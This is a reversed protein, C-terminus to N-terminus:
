TKKGVKLDAAEKFKVNATARVAKGDPTFMTYKVAVSEIVAQFSPIGGGASEQGRDASDAPTGWIVKVKPPRKTDTNNVMDTLKHLKEIETQVSTNSEFGDFLLEFSMTKPEGGTYELDAPGKKKQKQWPVSRDVAVEKPNFHAIVTVLPGELSVIKLKASPHISM